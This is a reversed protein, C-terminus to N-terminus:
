IRQAPVGASAVVLDGSQTLRDPSCEISVGLRQMDQFARQPDLIRGMMKLGRHNRFTGDRYQLFFAAIAIATWESIDPHTMRWQCHYSHGDRHGSGEVVLSAGEVLASRNSAALLLRSLAKRGLGLRVHYLGMVLWRLMCDLRWNPTGGFMGLEALDLEEELGHLELLDLPLSARKGFGPGYDLWVREGSRSVRQWRGSRFLVPQLEAASDIMGYVEEVRTVGKLSLSIGARITHFAEGSCAVARVLAAPLGPCLGAQTIFLRNRREIEGSLRGLEAVVSSSPLIDLCDCGAELCAAAVHRISDAVPAAVVVLDCGKLAQRLSERHATDAFRASVSGRAGGRVLDSVCRYATALTRGAVVVNIDKEEAFLRCLRSGVRGYGGLVVVTSTRETM